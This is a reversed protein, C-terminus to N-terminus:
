GEGNGAQGPPTAPEVRVIHRLDIIEYREVQPLAQGAAPLGVVTSAVAVMLMEPHRVDYVMGDSVHLRFPQFPRLRLAQLLDAPPTAFDGMRGYQGAVRM